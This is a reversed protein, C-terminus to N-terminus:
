YACDQFIAECARGDYCSARDEMAAQYVGDKEALSECTAVCSPIDGTDPDCQSSPLCCRKAGECFEQCGASESCGFGLFTSCIAAFVVIAVARQTM